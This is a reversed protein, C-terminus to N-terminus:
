QTKETTIKAAFDHFLDGLYKASINTKKLEQFNQTEQVEINDSNLLHKLLFELIKDTQWNEKPRELDISIFNKSNNSDSIKILKVGNKEEKYDINIM